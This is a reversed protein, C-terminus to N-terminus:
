GNLDGNRDIAKNEYDTIRRRYLEMKACELVGVMENYLAYCEGRENVINHIISTIFYNLEGATHIKPAVENIHQDLRKRDKQKIYPM